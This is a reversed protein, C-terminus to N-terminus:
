FKEQGGLLARRLERTAPDFIEIRHELHNDPYGQILEVEAWSKDPALATIRAQTCPLPDYDITLGKLRLHRCNEISIARSTETCVMEVGSALIEVGTLDKLVLHVSHRPAVRYRGPPVVIRRKGAKLQGDIFGQLDFPRGAPQALATLGGWPLALFLLLLLLRAWRPGPPPQFRTHMHIDPGNM